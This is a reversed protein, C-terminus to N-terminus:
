PNFGLLMQVQRWEGEPPSGIFLSFIKNFFDLGDMPGDFFLGLDAIGPILLGGVFMLLLEGKFNAIIYSSSHGLVLVWNSFVVFQALAFNIGELYELFDIVVGILQLQGAM